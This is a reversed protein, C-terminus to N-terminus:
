NLSSSKVTFYQMFMKDVFLATLVNKGDDVKVKPHHVNLKIHKFAVIELWIRHNVPSHIPFSLVPLDLCILAVSRTRAERLILCSFLLNYTEQQISMSSCLLWINTWFFLFSILPTFFLYLMVLKLTLTFNGLEKFSRSTCNTRLKTKNPHPFPLTQAYMCQVHELIGPVSAPNYTCCLSLPHLLRPM